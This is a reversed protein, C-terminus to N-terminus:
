MAGNEQHCGGTWRHGGIDVSTWRHGGGQSVRKASVAGGNQLSEFDIQSMRTSSEFETFSASQLMQDFDTPSTSPM